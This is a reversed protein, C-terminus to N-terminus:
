QVSLSGLSLGALLLWKTIDFYDVAPATSRSIFVDATTNVRKLGSYMVVFSLLKLARANQMGSRYVNVLSVVVHM